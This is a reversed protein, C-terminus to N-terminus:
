TPATWRWRWRLPLPVGFQKIKEARQRILQDYVGDRISRTDAGSWSIMQLKGAAQFAHETPGPFDDEWDHFMHALVVKGRTQEGFATLAEVRGEPTQWDPKVWAGLWVGEGPLEPGRGTTRLGDAPRPSPGPATGTPTAPPPVFDPAPKSCASVALASGLLLVVATQFRKM